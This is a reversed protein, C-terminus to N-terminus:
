VRFRQARGWRSKFGLFGSGRAEADLLKALKEQIQLQHQRVALDCATRMVDEILFGDGGHCYDEIIRYRDDKSHDREFSCQLRLGAVSAQSNTLFKSLSPNAEFM